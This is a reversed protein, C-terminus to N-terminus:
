SRLERCVKGSHWISLVMSYTVKEIQNRGSLIHMESEDMNNHTDNTQEKNTASYYEM